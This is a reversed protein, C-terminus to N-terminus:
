LCLDFHTMKFDGKEEDEKHRMEEGRWRCRRQKQTNRRM